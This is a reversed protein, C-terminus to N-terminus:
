TPDSGLAQESTLPFKMLVSLGTPKRNRLELTGDHHKVILNAVHLGLGIGDQKANSVNYIQVFPQLADQIRDVPIGPGEDAIEIEALGESSRCTVTVSKAPDTFKVANSLINTIAQKLKNRDARVITPSSFINCNLQPASQRASNQVIAVSETVVSRIDVPKTTLETMGKEFSTADLIASVMELLYNGSRYIEAAFDVYRAPELPGLTQKQLLESLGIIANLPTRLEHSIGALFLSKAKDARELEQFALTLAENREKLEYTREAVRQELELNLRNLAMVSCRRELQTTIRAHLIPLAVPKSVFDNAGATLCEVITEQDARATLMIVPLSSQDHEKRLASLVALGTMGPMMYDLVILDPPETATIALAETGSAVAQVAFGLRTLRRFLISRNDEQDDVVLIRNNRERTDM